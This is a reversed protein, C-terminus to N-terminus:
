RFYLPDTREESVEFTPVGDGDFGTWKVVRSVTGGIGVLYPSRPSEIHDGGRFTRYQDGAQGFGLLCESTIHDQAIVVAGDGEEAWAHDDLIILAFQPKKSPRIIAGRTLGGSWEEYEADVDGWWKGGISNHIRVEEEAVFEQQRM